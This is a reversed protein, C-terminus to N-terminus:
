LASAVILQNHSKKPNIALSVQRNATKQNNEGLHSNIQRCDRVRSYNSGSLFRHILVLCSFKETRLSEEFAHFVVNFFTFQLLM